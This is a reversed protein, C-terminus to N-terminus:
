AAAGGRESALIGQVRELKHANGGGPAVAKDMRTGIRIDTAIRPAGKAHVAAHCDHIAQCVENWPGEAARETHSVHRPSACV